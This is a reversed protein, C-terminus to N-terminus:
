TLLLYYVILHAKFFSQTTEILLSLFYILIYTYSLISRLCNVDVVEIISLLALIFFSHTLYFLPVMKTVCYLTQESFFM